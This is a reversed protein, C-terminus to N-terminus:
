HSRCLDNGPFLSDQVDIGHVSRCASKTCGTGGSQDGWIMSFPSQLAKIPAASMQNSRVVYEITKSQSRSATICPSGWRTERSARLQHTSLTTVHRSSSKLCYASSRCDCPCAVMEKTHKDTPRRGDQFHSVPLNEFNEWLSILYM